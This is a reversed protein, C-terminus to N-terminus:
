CSVHSVNLLLFIVCGRYSFFVENAVDINPYVYFNRKLQAETPSILIVTTMYWVESPGILSFHHDTTM